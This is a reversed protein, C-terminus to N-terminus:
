KKKRSKRAADRIEKRAWDKIKEAKKKVKKKSSM